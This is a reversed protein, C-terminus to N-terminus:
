SKESPGGEAAHEEGSGPAGPRIKRANIHTIRLEKRAQRQKPVATVYYYYESDEIRLHESKTYDINYQFLVAMEGAFTGAGISILSPVLQIGANLFMNLILLFVAESVAGAIVAYSFAHPVALSRILSVVILAILSCLIIVAMERSGAIMNYTYTILDQANMSEQVTQTKEITSIGNLTYYLFLGVPLGGLPLGTVFLAALVPFFLPIRFYAFLMAIASLLIAKPAFRYYLLYLILFLLLVTFALLKSFGYIQVIILIISVVPTFIAPIFACFVALAFYLWPLNLAESHGLGSLIASISFLAFVFRLCREVWKRHAEVFTIIKEKVELLTGM